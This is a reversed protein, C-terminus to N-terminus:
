VQVGERIVWNGPTARALAQWLARRVAVPIMATRYAASARVDSIPNCVHLALQGAASFLDEVGAAPEWTGDQPIALRQGVLAAGAAGALVPVPAVSALAIRCDQCVGDGNVRLTVAAGVVAIDMARRPSIKVYAGAQPGPPPPVRVATVLEGPQLATRGPGLFFEQVPITRTGRVSAVEVAAGLTLLAPATDAAPSAHCINGVVTGLNRVQVSGVSQSAWALATYRAWVEAYGAVAAHTSLPRIVLGEPGVSLGSLGPIGRLSVYGSSNDRGARRAPILDTGGALVTTGTKEALITVAEEITRPRYYELM